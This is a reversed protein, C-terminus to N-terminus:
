FGLQFGVINLINIIGSEVRPLARRFGIITDAGAGVADIHLLSALGVVRVRGGLGYVHLIRGLDAAHGSGKHLFKFRAM